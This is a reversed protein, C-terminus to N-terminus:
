SAQGLDRPQAQLWDLLPGDRDLAIRGEESLQELGHGIRELWERRQASWPTEEREITAALMPRVDDLRKRALAPDCHSLTRWLTTIQDDVLDEHHIVLPQVARSALFLWQLHQHYLAASESLADADLLDALPRHQFTPTIGLDYAGSCRSLHFSAVAARWNRRLLVLIPQDARCACGAATLAHKLEPWLSEFRGPLQFPQLKCSFFVSGTLKSEAWRELVLRQLWRQNIPAADGRWRLLWRQWRPREGWRSLLQRYLVNRNFYETPMGYGLDWLLRCLHFSGTRPPALILLLKPPQPPRVPARSPPPGASRDLWPSLMELESLPRVHM